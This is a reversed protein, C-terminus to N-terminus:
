KMIFRVGIVILSCIIIMAAVILLTLGTYKIIETVPIGLVFVFLLFVIAVALFIYSVGIVKSKINKMASTKAM